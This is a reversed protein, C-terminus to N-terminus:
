LTSLRLLHTLLQDIAYAPSQEIASLYQHWEKASLSPIAGIPKQQMGLWILRDTTDETDNQQLTSWWRWSNHKNALWLARQASVKFWLPWLQYQNHLTRLATPIAKPHLNQEHTQLLLFAERVQQWKKRQLLDTILDAVEPTCFPRVEADAPASSHDSVVFERAGKQLYQLTIQAQWFLDSTPLQDEAAVFTRLESLM